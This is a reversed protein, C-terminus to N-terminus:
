DLTPLLPEPVIRQQYGARAQPGRSYRDCPEFLCGRLGQGPLYYLKAHPLYFDGSSGGGPLKPDRARQENNILYGLVFFRQPNASSVTSAVITTSM